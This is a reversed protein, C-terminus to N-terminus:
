KLDTNLFCNEIAVIHIWNSRKFCRIGSEKKWEQSGAGSKGEQRLVLSDGKLLGM